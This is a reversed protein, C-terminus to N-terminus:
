PYNIFLDESIRDKRVLPKAAMSQNTFYSIGIYINYVWSRVSHVDGSRIVFMIM